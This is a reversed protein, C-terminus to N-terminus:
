ARAFRGVLEVHTSWLFQGVPRVWGLRWGAAVLVAADRAFSAPNCSAYGVVPVGSRALEAVQAEAGARPPDLVVADFGRLEAATLPRRYLDRHETEVARGSRRAAALLAALPDRAAEVARVSARESLPLAFTGLGAFLDAVRAAGGIAEVVGAVLAAEGEVTAQLFAGHPLAVAIGGLTVTVPEPEWMSLPAGDELVALRALRHDRGFAAFADAAELGQWEVGTLTVTPGQDALVLEAEMARRQAGVRALLRRLPELLAFLTPHLIACDRVDVLRHSREERFGLTVRREQRVAGLRARRRSRPPSIALPRLEAEIGQAALANAVREAIFVAYDADVLHQLQCGGCRPFHPCRPPHHREGPIVAGDATLGDGPAALAAHRGSATVGDGRAAVRVIPETM